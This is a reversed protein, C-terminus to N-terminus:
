VGSGNGAMELHYLCVQMTLVYTRHESNEEVAGCLSRMSVAIGGRARVCDNPIM